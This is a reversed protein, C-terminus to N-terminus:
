LFPILLFADTVSPEVSRCRACAFFCLVLCSECAMKSQDVEIVQGPDKDAFGAYYRICDATANVALTLTPSLLSLLPLVPFPPFLAFPPFLSSDWSLSSLSPLDAKM